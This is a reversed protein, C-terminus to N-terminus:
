TSAIDLFGTCHYTSIAIWGKYPVIVEYYNISDPVLFHEVKHDLPMLTIDKTNIYVTLNAQKGGNNTIKYRYAGTNNPLSFSIHDEAKIFLDLQVDKM